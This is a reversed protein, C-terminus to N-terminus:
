PDIMELSWLVLWYLRGHLGGSRRTKHGTSIAASGSFFCLVFIGQPRNLRRGAAICRKTRPAAFCGNQM